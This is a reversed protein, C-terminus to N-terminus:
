MIINLFHMIYIYILSSPSGEDREKVIEREREREGTERKEGREREKGDRPSAPPFAKREEM